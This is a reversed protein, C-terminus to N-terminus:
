ISHEETRSAAMLLIQGAYISSKSIENIEKIKSVTMGFKRALSILNDGRRVKYRMYTSSPQTATSLVMLKQGPVITSSRIRNLRKIEEVSTRYRRAIRYLSEGRRVKHHVAQRIQHRRLKSLRNMDTRDPEYHEPFWLEYSDGPPTLDSHLHRNLNKLESLSVKTTNAVSKLSVLSPVPIRVAKSLPKEPPHVRLEEALLLAALFKPVYNRTERPLVKKESLVWFDRSGSKIIANMVRSEGANYAALALPWSSFVKHLRRLYTSAARTARRIDRREDVFHNVQLGFRRATGKMFQWPGAAGAHSRAKISFGSEILPVFFLEEPLKQRQLEETIVPRYLAGRKMYRLFRSHGNGSFYRLWRQVSPKERLDAPDTDPLLEQIAPDDAVTPPNLDPYTKLPDPDLPHLFMENGQGAQTLQATRCSVLTLHSTTLVAVAASLAGAKM